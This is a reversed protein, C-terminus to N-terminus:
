KSLRVQHPNFQGESGYLVKSRAYAAKTADAGMGERGKGASRATELAALVCPGYM